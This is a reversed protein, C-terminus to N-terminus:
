RASFTRRLSLCREFNTGKRGGSEGTQDCLLYAGTAHCVLLLFGVPKPQPLNAGLRHSWKEFDSPMQQNGEYVGKGLAM